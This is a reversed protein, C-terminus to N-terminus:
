ARTIRKPIKYESVRSKLFAALSRAKEEGNVRPGVAIRATLGGGERRVEADVVEEDLLIARRVEELDVMNGNVKCTKKKERAFVLHGGDFRGLDGTLFWGDRFAERTERERRYYGRSLHPTRLLIEGNGFSDPSDIRAEVSDCLPGITGARAQGRINRSAPAFETLGYGHLVEVGFTKRLGAYEEAALLSGGSVFVKLTPLPLAPDKLRGLLAYIEPVATVHDIGLEAIAQFLLRPHMTRAIVATMRYLLPVLLCGVLAFINPLPLNFLLREGPEGQLGQQLVRAGHFYQTHPVMVGLPYGYGRYTYHLSAIEDDLEAPEPRGPAEREVRLTNGARTVVTRDELYGRLVELYGKEAIVAAPRANAFIEELELHRYEPKLPVPVAGIGLLALFIQAFGASNDLLLAVPTKPGIGAQRLFSAAQAIGERLRGASLYLPPVGPSVEVLAPHEGWDRLCRDIEEHIRM